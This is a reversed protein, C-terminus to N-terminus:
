LADILEHLYKIHHYRPKVELLPLESINESHIVMRGTQNRQALHSNILSEADHYNPYIFSYKGNYFADALLSGQGQCVFFDSNALNCYYEDQMNIDKISINPYKEACTDLFAVSDSYRKIIDMISKNSNILGATLYHHCPIHKKFTQHYPRIWEYQIRLTPPNDTDGYHAYILNRDSNIVINATLGNDKTWDKHITYQYHKMIHLSDIEERTLGHTILSSSCQWLPINLLNAIYSTFYELDSIILDPQYSKIQDYYIALNDNDLSRIRPHCMHLLADLTWDINHHKPSSIKYASIKIQNPSGQMVQLFRSLQIKAGLNNSAAYLLKV